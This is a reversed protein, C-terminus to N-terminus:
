ENLAVGYIDGRGDQRAIGRHERIYHVYVCTPSCRAHEEFPIDGPIWYRLGIGCDFCTCDDGHGTIFLTFTTTRCLCSTNFTIYFCHQKCVKLFALRLWLSQLLCSWGNHGHLLLNLDLMSCITPPTDQPDM